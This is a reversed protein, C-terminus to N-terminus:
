RLRMMAPRDTRSMTTSAPSGEPVKEVAVAAMSCPLCTATTGPAM